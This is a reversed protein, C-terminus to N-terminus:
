RADLLPQVQSSPWPTTEPALGAPLEQGSIWAEVMRVHLEPARTLWAHGAGPVFRATANPMLAALAANSARITGPEREGAVLLIPCLASLEERSFRNKNDNADAFSRRFAAPSVARLDAAFRARGAPDSPDGGLYRYLLGIV